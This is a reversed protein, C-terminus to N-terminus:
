SGMGNEKGRNAHVDDEDKIDAEEEKMREMLIVQNLQIIAELIRSQCLQAVNSLEIGSRIIERQWTNEWVVSKILYKFQLKGVELEFLTGEFGDDLEDLDDGEWLKLDPLHRTGAGTNITKTSKWRRYNADSAVSYNRLVDRMWTKRNKFQDKKERNKNVNILIDEFNERSVLDEPFHLKLVPM